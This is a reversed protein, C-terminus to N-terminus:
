CAKKHVYSINLYHTKISQCSLFEVFLFHSDGKGWLNAPAEHVSRGHQGIMIVVDGCAQMGVSYKSVPFRGDWSASNDGASCSVQIGVSPPTCCCNPFIMVAVLPTAISFKVTANM